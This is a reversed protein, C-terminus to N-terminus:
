FDKGGREEVIQVFKSIKRSVNKEDNMSLLLKVISRRIWLSLSLSLLAFFDVKFKM